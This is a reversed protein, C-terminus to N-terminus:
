ELAKGAAITGHEDGSIVRSCRPTDFFTFDAPQQDSWFWYGGYAIQLRSYPVSTPVAKRTTAKSASLTVFLAWPTAPM